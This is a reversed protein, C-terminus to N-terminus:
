IVVRLLLRFVLGCGACMGWGLIGRLQSQWVAPMAGRLPHRAMPRPAPTFGFGVRRSTGSGLIGRFQSQWAAPM